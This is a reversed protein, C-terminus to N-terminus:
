KVRVRITAPKESWETPWGTGRGASCSVALEFEGSAVKDCTVSFYLGGPCDLDCSVQVDGSLATNDGVVEARWFQFERQNTLEANQVVTSDSPDFFFVDDIPVTFGLRGQDAMSADAEVEVHCSDFAPERVSMNLSTGPIYDASDPDGTGLKDFRVDIQYESEIYLWYNRAGNYAYKTYVHQLGEHVLDDENFWFAAINQRMSGPCNDPLRQKRARNVHRPLEFQREIDHHHCKHQEAHKQKGLAVKCRCPADLGRNLRHHGLLQRHMAPLSFRRNLAGRCLLMRQGDASNREQQTFVAQVIAARADSPAIPERAAILFHEGQKRLPTRSSIYLARQVYRVVRGFTVDAMNVGLEVDMGALLGGLNHGASPATVTRFLGPIRNSRPRRQLRAGRM